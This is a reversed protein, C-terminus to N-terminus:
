GPGGPAGINLEDGPGLRAWRRDECGDRDGATPCGRETAIRTRRAFGAVAARAAASAAPWLAWAWSSVALPLRNGLGTISTDPYVRQAGYFITSETNTVTSGGLVAFREASRLFSDARAQVQLGLIALTM